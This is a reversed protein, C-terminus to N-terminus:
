HAIKLLLANSSILSLTHSLYFYVLFNFLAVCLPLQLVTDKSSKINFCTLHSAAADCHLKMWQCKLDTYPIPMLLKM